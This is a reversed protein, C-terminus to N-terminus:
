AKTPIINWALCDDSPCIGHVHEGHIYVPLPKHCIPCGIDGEWETGYKEKVFDIIKNIIIMSENRHSVRYADWFTKRKQKDPCYEIVTKAFAEKRGKFKNSKPLDVTACVVSCSRVPEYKDKGTVDPDSSVVSFTCTTKMSKVFGSLLDALGDPDEVNYVKIAAVEKATMFNRVGNKKDKILYVPEYRFRVDLTINDIKIKM